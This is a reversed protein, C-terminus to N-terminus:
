VSQRAEKEWYARAPAETAWSRVSVVCEADEHQAEDLDYTILRVHDAYAAKILVYGVGETERQELITAGSAELRTLYANM